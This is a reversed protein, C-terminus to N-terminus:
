ILGFELGFESDTWLMVVACIRDVCYFMDHLPAHWCICRQKSLWAIKSSVILWRQRWSKKYKKCLCAFCFDCIFWTTGVYPRHSRMADCCADLTWSTWPFIGAPSTVQHATTSGHPSFRVSSSTIQNTIRNKNYRAILIQHFPLDVYYDSQQGYLM